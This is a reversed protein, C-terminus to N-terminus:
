KRLVLSLDEVAFSLGLSELTKKLPIGSEDLGINQFYANKMPEVEVTVGKLPGKSLPPKGITRDPLYQVLAGERANFMHRLIQIRHGIALIEDINIQWGTIAHILEIFPYKGHYSGFECFGLANYAQYFKAFKAQEKGVKEPNKPISIKFGTCFNNIPGVSGMELNAATHRGPTPDCLYTLALTKMLRPDHMPLEQGGSQMTLHMCKKGIKKELREAALKTGDALLDGIGERNVMLRLLPMIYDSRNWGPLFGQPFERCQFDNQSLIGLEICENVFAITMGASITDMGVRNLYENALIAASVDPNLIAGGFVGLTEYEPRHTEDLNLEPIKLIAGCRLPCGFCGYSQIKYKTIEDHAFKRSIKQPWDIYGVGKFNQIPTDGIEASISTAFSTGYKAFTKSMMIDPGRMPIKMWRLATAFNPVSKIMPNILNSKINKEIRANYSKALEIAQANDKIPIKSVGNLCIAKLQKAGMVAGLGSRAAIRGRDTVIGAILSVKEGAQGISAVQCGKGHLNKLMAESETADKGWITAADQLSCGQKDILLYVPKSSSGTVFIADFGARKIAPGFYGGCNSDGWGGTSKKGDSFINKGTLPSKGCVMFRGTFPAVTGTLLGPCFGLINEPGLPDCNPPLHRYIYYIGLGYGGLYLRYIEEPVTEERFEGTTLNVWLIKGMVGFQQM